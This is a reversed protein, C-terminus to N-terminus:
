AKIRIMIKSELLSNIFERTDKQIVDVPISSYTNHMADIIQPISKKSMILLWIDRGTESLDFVEMKEKDIFVIEGNVDKWMIRKENLAIKENKKQTLCTKM